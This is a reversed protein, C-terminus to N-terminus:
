MQAMDVMERNSASDNHVRHEDCVEEEEVECSAELEEEEESAAVTVTVETLVRAIIM